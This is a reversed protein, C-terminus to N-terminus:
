PELVHRLLGAEDAGSPPLPRADGVVVAVAVAVEEHRVETPADEIAVLAVPGEAVLRLGGAEGARRRSPVGPAREEVVVAVSPEVEYDRRIELEVARADGLR